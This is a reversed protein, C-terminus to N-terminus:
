LSLSLSLSPPPPSFSVFVYPVFSLVCSHLCIRRITTGVYNHLNCPLKSWSLSSRRTELHVAATPLTYGTSIWGMSTAPISSPWPITLLTRVVRQLPWWRPSPLLHWTGAASLWCPRWTPTPRRWTTSFGPFCGKWINIILLSSGLNIFLLLLSSSFSNHSYEKNWGWHCSM